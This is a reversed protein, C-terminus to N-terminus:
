IMRQKASDEFSLIIWSKGRFTLSCHKIDTPKYDHGDSASVNNAYEILAWCPKCGSTDRRMAIYSELDAIVGNARDIAQQTVAQFFMDLTEIFRQQAGSSGTAILRLWYSCSLDSM